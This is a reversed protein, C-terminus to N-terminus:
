RSDASSRILENFTAQLLKWGETGNLKCQMLLHRKFILPAVGIGCESYLDKFFQKGSCKVNWADFWEQEREKLLIECRGVFDREWDERKLGHLQAQIASLRDFLSIAAEPFTKGAVEKARLGSDELKYSHYVERVVRSLLQGNALQQFLKKADGINSPFQKKAFHEKQVLDFIIEPELLYNEICYRDWQKIRVRPTSQLSTPKGDQDFLFYSINEKQGSKEAEQLREIHKEVEGRGALERFKIRALSEPFAEEMLEVDDEGEVFVIAEYLMEEVESTGLLRLAQAVEPQDKKRIESVVSGQRLHYATCEKRRMASSFIEASHSCIIAQISNPLLYHDLLFGLLSKCVAPNLHLEPEDILIVGGAEISRAIVLFTLILGKEGSSMSDIDFTEGTHSDKIQISAQGHRNVGFGQIVRGVLLKDFITNFASRLDAESQPGEVLWAFITTKLRQYKIVPMSNHSELQQNADVTGLQIPIEGPPLARDAPFYSFQTKYPSLSAEFVSFLIQSFYDQGSISGLRDITLALKCSRDASVRQINQEVYQQASKLAHQGMPSSLFQVLALGGRELSIGQQAAVTARCLQESMQPLEALERDGLKFNCIIEVPQNSDKAIAGFNFMQPLQQSIAGLGMLVQTSEQQTRPALVAKAMRIAELVTTKGVANPGVILNAGPKFEMRLDKLSRFNKVVLSTIHMKKGLEQPSGARLLALFSDQPVANQGRKNVPTAIKVTSSWSKAPHKPSGRNAGRARKPVVYPVAICCDCRREKERGCASLRNV